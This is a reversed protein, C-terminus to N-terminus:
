KPAWRSPQTKLIEECGGSVGGKRRALRYRVSRSSTRAAIASESSIVSKSRNETGSSRAWCLRIAGIGSRVGSLESDSDGSVVGLEVKDERDGKVFVGVGKTFVGVGGGGVIAVGAIM